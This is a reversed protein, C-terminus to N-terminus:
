EEFYGVVSFDTTPDKPRKKCSSKDQTHCFAQRSVEQSNLNLQVYKKILGRVSPVTAEVDGMAIENDFMGGFEGNILDLIEEDKPLFLPSRIASEEFM